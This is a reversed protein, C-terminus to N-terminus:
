ASVRPGPRDSSSGGRCRASGTSRQTSPRSTAPTIYGRAKAICLAATLESARRFLAARDLGTRQRAESVDLAVTEAARDIEDPL